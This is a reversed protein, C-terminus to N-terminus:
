AAKRLARVRRFEIANDRLREVIVAKESFSLRCQAARWNRKQEIFEILQRSM